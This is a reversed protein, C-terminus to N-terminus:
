GESVKLKSLLSLRYGLASGLRTGHNMYNGLVLASRLLLLFIRSMMVEHCAMTHAEVVKSLDDLQDILTFKLLYTRMRTEINPVSLLKLCFKEADSLKSSNGAQHLSLLMKREDSTPICKIIAEVNESSKFVSDDLRIIARIIADQTTNFKAALSLFVSSLLMLVSHCVCFSLSLTTPKGLSIGVATARKMDMALVTKKAEKNKNLNIKKRVAM